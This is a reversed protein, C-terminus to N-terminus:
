FEASRLELLSLLHHLLLSRKDLLEGAEKSEAKNPSWGREEATLAPSREPIQEYVPGRCGACLALSLILWAPVAFRGRSRLLSLTFIM